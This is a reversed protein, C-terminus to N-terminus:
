CSEYIQIEEKRSRRVSIIRIKGKRYTIVASWFKQGIKGIVVFHQEDTTKAPIEVLDPDNWLKKAEEFDINHKIKNSRSKNQDYEFNM